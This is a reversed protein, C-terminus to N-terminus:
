WLRCQRNSLLDDAEILVNEGRRQTEAWFSPDTWCRCSKVFPIHGKAASGALTNSCRLDGEEEGEKAEFVIMVHLQARGQLETIMYQSHLVAQRVQLKAADDGVEERTEVHGQCGLVAM